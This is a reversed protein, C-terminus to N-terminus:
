GPLREGLRGRVGPCVDVCAHLVDYKLSWRLRSCALAAVPWELSLLPCLTVAPSAHPPPPPPVLLKTVRSSIAPHTAAHSLLLHLPPAPRLVLPPPLSPLPAYGAGGGGGGDGGEDWAFGVCIAVIWRRAGLWSLTAMGAVARVGAVCVCRQLGDELLTWSSRRTMRHHVPTHLSHPPRPPSCWYPHCPLINFRATGCM